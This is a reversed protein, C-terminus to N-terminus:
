KASEAFGSSLSDRTKGKSKICARYSARKEDGDSVYLEVIM